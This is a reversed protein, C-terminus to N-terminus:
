KAVKPFDFNVRSTQKVLKPSTGIIKSLKPLVNPESFCNWGEGNSSFNFYWAYSRACDASIMFPSPEETFPYCEFAWNKTEKQLM